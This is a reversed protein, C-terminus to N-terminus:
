DTDLFVPPAKGALRLLEEATSQRAEPLSALNDSQTQIWARYQDVLPHLATEAAVGDPLAGLAKMSLEVGPM